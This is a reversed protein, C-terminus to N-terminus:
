GPDAAHLESIALQDDQGRTTPRAKGNETFAPLWDGSLEVLRVQSRLVGLQPLDIAAGACVRIPGIEVSAEITWGM